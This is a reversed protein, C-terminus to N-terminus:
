AVSGCFLQGALLSLFFNVVLKEGLLVLLKFLKDLHLVLHEVGFKLIRLLIIDYTKLGSLALVPRTLTAQSLCGLLLDLVLQCVHRLNHRKVWELLLM